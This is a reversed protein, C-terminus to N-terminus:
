GCTLSVALLLVVIFPTVAALVMLPNVSQNPKSMAAQTDQNTPDEQLTDRDMLTLDSLRMCMGHARIYPFTCAWECTGLKIYYAVSPNPIPACPQCTCTETAFYKGIDCSESNLTCQPPITPTAEPIILTCISQETNRIFGEDCEWPCSNPLQRGVGTFSANATIECPTCGKWRTANTCETEYEGISCDHPCSSCFLLIEDHVYGTDCEWSCEPLGIWQSHEPLLGTASTNTKCTTCVTDHVGCATETYTGLPCTACWV